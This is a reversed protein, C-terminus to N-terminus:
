KNKWDKEFIELGKATLPHDFCQHFIQSSVTVAGAGLMAAQVLHHRSRVSAALVRTQYGQVDYISIIEDLLGLGDHGNDELRGIFPSVYTAGCKAALVAQTSSFCLTMNTPLGDSSLNRCARLGDFTCPLKICVNSHIKSLQKAEALMDDHKRALVEVSVPGSVLGCIEKILDVYNDCGSKAVLSPNTTVGDIFDRLLEVDDINATDLFIEM